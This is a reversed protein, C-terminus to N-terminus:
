RHRWRRRRWCQCRQDCWWRWNIALSNSLFRMKEVSHTRDAASILRGVEESTMAMLLRRDIQEIIQKINNAINGREELWSREPENIAAGMRKLHRFARTGRWTVVDRRSRRRRKEWKLKAAKEEASLVINGDEQQIEERHAKLEKKSEYVFQSLEMIEMKVKNSKRRRRRSLRKLKRQVKKQLKLPNKTNRFSRLRRRRRPKRKKKVREGGVTKRNQMGARHADFLRERVVQGEQFGGEGPDDQPPTRSHSDKIIEALPDQLPDSMLEDIRLLSDKSSASATNQMAITQKFLSSSLKPSTRAPIDAPLTM